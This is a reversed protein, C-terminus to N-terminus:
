DPLGRLKRHVSDMNGRRIDVWKAAKNAPVLEVNCKMCWPKGDMKNNHDSDGCKPCILGGSQLNHKLKYNETIRKLMPNYLRRLEEAKRRSADARTQAKQKIKQIRDLDKEVNRRSSKKASGGYLWTTWQSDCAEKLAKKFEPSETSM